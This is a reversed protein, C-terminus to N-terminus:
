HKHQCDHKQRYINRDAKKQEHKILKRESRTIKGDAKAMEKYHEIKAQQMHLAMAEKHTLQGNAKGHKIKMHQEKQEANVNHGGHASITNFLVPSLIMLIGTLIRKM